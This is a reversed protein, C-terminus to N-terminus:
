STQGDARRGPRVRVADNGQSRHRLRGPLSEKEDYVGVQETSPCSNNLSRYVDEPNRVTEFNDLIVLLPEDINSACLAEMLYKEPRFGQSKGETPQMLEAVAKAIDGLSLVQPRVQRPGEDRLDIDRASLWCIAYYEGSEAIDQLVRLALMTKGIGGRGSLTIVPHRDDRLVTVLEEQLDTREVYYVSLTPLNSYSNGQVDMDPLGETDSAGLAEPSIRYSTIPTRRADGSSYSLEQYSDARVKGNAVYVDRLEADTAVLRVMLPEGLNFISAM